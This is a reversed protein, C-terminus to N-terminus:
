RDQLKELSQLLMGPSFKGPTVNMSLGVRCSSFEDVATAMPPPSRNFM